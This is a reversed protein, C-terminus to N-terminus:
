DRPSPSTYLLCINALTDLEYNLIELKKLWFIKIEDIVMAIEAMNTSHGILAKYNLLLRYYDDQSKLIEKKIMKKKM